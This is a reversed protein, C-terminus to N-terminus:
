RQVVDTSVDMEEGDGVVNDEAGSRSVMAHVEVVHAAMHEKSTLYIGCHGCKYSTMEPHERKMHSDLKESTSGTYPCHSCVQVGAGVSKYPSTSPPENNRPDMMDPTKLKTM